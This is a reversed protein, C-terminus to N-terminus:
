KTENLHRQAAEAASSGPALRLVKQWDTVADQRNGKAAHLLGRELWAVPDDPALNLAQGLAEEALDYQELSRYASATLVYIEPRKSDIDRAENLDDLADFYRGLSGLLTARDIRLEIDHPNLKVGKGQDAIAKETQGARVQAQAAQAYLEAATAAETQAQKAALMELLRAAEVYKGLRIQALALCHQAPVGGKKKIWAQAQKVAQDPASRVQLLCSQYQAQEEEQGYAASLILCFCGGLTAARLFHRLRSVAANFPIM